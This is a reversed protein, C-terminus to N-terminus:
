PRRPEQSPHPPPQTWRRVKGVIWERNTNATVVLAAAMTLWGFWVVAGYAWGLGTGAAVFALALAVFGCLRLARSIAQDLKRHLWDQQHRPTALLLFGFGTLSLLSIAADIM